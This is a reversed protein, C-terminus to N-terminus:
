RMKAYNPSTCHAYCVGAAHNCLNPLLEPTAPSSLPARFTQTAPPPDLRFKPQPTYGDRPKWEGSWDLYWGQPDPARQVQILTLENDDRDFFRSGKKIVPVVEAGGRVSEHEFVRGSPFQFVKRPGSTPHSSESDESAPVPKPAQVPVVRTQPMPMAIVPARPTPKAPAKRLIMEGMDLRARARNIREIDAATLPKGRRKIKKAALRQEERIRRVTEAEGLLRLLRRAFAQSAKPGFELMKTLSNRVDRETPVEAKVAEAITEAYLLRSAWHNGSDALRRLQRSTEEENLELPAKSLEASAAWGLPTLTWRVAGHKIRDVEVLGALHTRLLEDTEAKSFNGHLLDPQLANGGANRLALLIRTIRSQKM